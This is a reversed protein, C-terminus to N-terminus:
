QGWPVFVAVCNLRVMSSPRSTNLTWGAGDMGSTVDSLVVHSLVSQCRM